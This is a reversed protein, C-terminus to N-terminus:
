TNSSRTVCGGGAAHDLRALFEDRCEDRWEDLDFAPDRYRMDDIEFLHL